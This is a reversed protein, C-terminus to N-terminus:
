KTKKDLGDIVAKFIPFPKPGQIKESISGDSKMVMFSPTETFGLSSALSIDKDVLLEYKGDDFCTNFETINFDRLHLALKKLNKVSAWGSDIQGQNAYLIDHYEWFKGQDNACQAALSAAKSDFGRNPLHKFVYVAKGTQVYTSNIQQETNDVFRKCLYCQFDSFDVVVLPSNVDGYYPSGESILKDLTMNSLPEAFAIIENNHGSEDNANPLIWMSM